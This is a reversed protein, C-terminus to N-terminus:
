WLRQTPDAVQVADMVANGNEDVMLNNHADRKQVAVTKMGPTLVENAQRSTTWGTAGTLQGQGNFTYNVTTVSHSYGNSTAGVKVGDKVADSTTVSRVVQAQGMIVAYTNVTDSWTGQITKVVAKTPDAVQVADMVANGNEDVMLNNHADRKQVAVTKMGPTLVENAQRSTTWGTAGTLQGQGNFTYNVTTVSHSYGNSTAGVKVGDKVADSTTVSRVVQAQGMIVAYTNVTDSWTGQITKVVAKTPDAVQVADMVANGNEDVMLNNHADRKQVAVTKMGPTLVENAQRSTTWGTAGTLQGQGNFTYNVTTVSHSYRDETPQIKVGDKVADSTTVSRVVQAQGMIVAYTNVTDSWTGQITKVVAKTPDAVQVADMVANGNEDVMLNNHADRKQVAVTKMGPTLVENAQRSTTWGTAGTLQGQGNFTYNVTTVSHSYGNSTAGVKVGDKVADSTTVSRVVQAQGMIVAYTNVTDSWTAQITKVVAKTPDAVQVADMVANGNEDEMLNNHADRKQVAVTKMGPTLVENAQRSTTWGTAGTLQGQGNFTYNVTGVSHSYGNSTAGVKVGDKVADSTTVSRVVQAQGMIVAYTNVTDSWTAQITKV